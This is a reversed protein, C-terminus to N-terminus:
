PNPEQSTPQQVLFFAAAGAPLATDAAWAQPHRWLCRAPDLVGPPLDAPWPAQSSGLNFIALVAGGSEGGVDGRRLVLVDGAAHLVDCRGTRLARHERRLRLLTRTHQLMSDAQTEQVDVALAAHAPDVPLWPRTTSFGAQPAARRWPMPTRCGDRGPNLPWNALGFPDQLDEFALTSQPLGLEEGQYIFLTGRLAVLLAM